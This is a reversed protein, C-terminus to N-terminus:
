WLESADLVRGPRVHLTKAANPDLCPFRLQSPKVLSPFSKTDQMTSYGSAGHIGYIGVNFGGVVGIYAYIAYMSHRPYLLM